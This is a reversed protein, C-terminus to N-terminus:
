ASTVASCGACSASESCAPRMSLRSAGHFPMALSDRPRARKNDRAREPPRRVVPPNSHMPGEEGQASLSPPSLLLPVVCVNYRVCEDDACWRGGACNCAPQSPSSSRHLPCRSPPPHATPPARYVLTHLCMEEWTGFGGPTTANRSQMAARRPCRPAVRPLALRSARNHIMPTLLLSTHQTDSALRRQPAAPEENDM